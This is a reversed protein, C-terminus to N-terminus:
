DTDSGQDLPSKANEYDVAITKIQSLQELSYKGGIRGHGSNKGSYGGFPTHIEWYASSDNVNVIGTEIRETFYHMLEINSTFVSSTLGLEIGNAIAIAEDYSEFSIIPAIPGFSEEWNVAMETTVNDLVTPQYYRDTPMNEARSGGAVVTAGQEKADAIHRDMKDAVADNNLPGLDTGEAMPDDLSLQQAHDALRSVFEDHVDEHVLIRESASCIQGANSFCGFSTCEVAADLDADDLIIVPGNGGLELLTPKTGADRAIAEGTEPSGTFGIVDTGDNVVLENGVVPGEGTVLNLAGDPLSTDSFVDLLRTAVVSTTPAPVWVVSNGAALGPALYEAPINLPYNWPTIVGLVGHPKRLTYIHKGADESPIVETEDRKVDEAANRFEKACLDVEVRAEALPKGQDKTLWEALRDSNVDIADALEHCLEAREFATMFELEPQIDRAADIARQADTRTGAPMEGLTDGTAPNTVAFTENSESDTPEGAIYMPFSTPEDGMETASESGWDTM